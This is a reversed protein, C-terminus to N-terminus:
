TFVSTHVGRIVASGSAAYRGISVATTMKNEIAVSHYIMLPIKLLTTAPLSYALYKALNTYSLSTNASSIRKM